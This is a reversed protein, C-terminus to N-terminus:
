RNRRRERERPAGVRCGYKKAQGPPVDCNGWGTKRGRNWGSPRASTRNRYARNTVIAGSRRRRERDRERVDRRDNNRYEIRNRGNGQAVVSAPALAMLLIFVKRLHTQSM